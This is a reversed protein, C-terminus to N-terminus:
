TLDWVTISHDSISVERSQQDGTEYEIADNTSKLIDPDVNSM